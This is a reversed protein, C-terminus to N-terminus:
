PLFSKVQRRLCRLCWLNYRKDIRLLTFPVLNAFPEYSTEWWRKRSHSNGHQHPMGVGAYFSYLTDTIWGVVALPFTGSPLEIWETSSWCAWCHQALMGSMGSTAHEQQTSCHTSTKQQKWVYSDSVGKISPTREESSAQHVCSIM